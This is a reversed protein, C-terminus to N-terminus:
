ATRAVAQRVGQRATRAVAQRAVRWATRAVAQRVEQRATRAVAQRAVQQATHALAQRVWQLQVVMQDVVTAQAVSRLTRGSRSAEMHMANTTAGLQM